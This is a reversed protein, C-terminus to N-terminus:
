GGLLVPLRVNFIVSFLFYFVATLIISTLVAKYISIKEDSFCVYVAIVYLPTSVLYGLYNFLILYIVTSISFITIPKFNIKKIEFDTKEKISKIADIIILIFIFSVSIVPLFKAGFIGEDYGSDILDIGYLYIISIFSFLIPISLKRIKSVKM